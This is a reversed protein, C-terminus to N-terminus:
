RRRQQGAGGQGVGGAGAGRAGPRLSLGGKGKGKGKAAGGGGQELDLYTFLWKSYEVEEKYVRFPTEDCLSKVGAIPLGSGEQGDSGIRNGIGGLQGANNAQEGALTQGQSPDQSDSGGLGDIGIGLGGEEAQASPDIIAGGPGMLLLAWKGDPVLPDDYQRRMYYAGKNPSPEMLDDLKQPGQGGHDKRYRQIARTIEQARFIMEAENDRRLLDIWAQFAVATWILSIALMGVVAVM